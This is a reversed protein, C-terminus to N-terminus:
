GSRHGDISLTAVGPSVMEDVDGLINPIQLTKPTDYPVFEGDVRYADDIPYWKLGTFEKRLHNNKDRLRIALRDGSQHVWLTLDQLGIRDPSGIADSKLSAETM